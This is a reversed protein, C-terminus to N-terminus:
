RMPWVDNSRGPRLPGCSRPRSAAQVLGPEIGAVVAAIVAGPESRFGSEGGRVPGTM